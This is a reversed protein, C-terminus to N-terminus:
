GGAVFVAVQTLFSPTLSRVVLVRKYFEVVVPDAGIRAEDYDVLHLDAAARVRSLAVYAMGRRRTLVCVVM